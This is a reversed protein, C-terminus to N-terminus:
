GPNEGAQAKKCGESHDALLTPKPKNKFCNGKGVGEVKRWGGEGLSEMKVEKTNKNRKKMIFPLTAKSKKKTNWVNEM